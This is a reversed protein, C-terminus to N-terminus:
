KERCSSPLYHAPVSGPKCTFKVSRSSPDGKAELVITNDAAEKLQEDSSLTIIIVGTDQDYKLWKVLSVYFSKQKSNYSAPMNGSNAYGETIATREASAALIGESVRARVTYCQYAPMTIAFPIAVVFLIIIFLFIDLLVNFTYKSFVKFNDIPNFKLHRVWLFIFITATIMSYYFSEPLDRCPTLLTIEYVAILITLLSWHVNAL